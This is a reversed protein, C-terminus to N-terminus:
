CKRKAKSNAMLERLVLRERSLTQTRIEYDSRPEISAKGKANPAAIWSLILIVITSVAIM